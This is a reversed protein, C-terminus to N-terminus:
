LTYVAAPKEAFGLPCAALIGALRGIVCIEILM